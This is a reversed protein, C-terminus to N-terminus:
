QSSRRRIVLDNPIPRLQNAFLFGSGYLETRPFAAGTRLAKEARTILALDMNITIQQILNDIQNIWKKSQKKQGTDYWVLLYIHLLSGSRCWQSKTAYLFLVSSLSPVCEMMLVFQQVTECTDCVKWGTSCLQCMWTNIQRWLVPLDLHSSYGLYLEKRLCTESTSFSAHEIFKQIITVSPFISRLISNNRCTRAGNLM